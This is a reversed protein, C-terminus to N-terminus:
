VGIQYGNKCADGKTDDEAADGDMEWANWLRDFEAKSATRQDDCDEETM